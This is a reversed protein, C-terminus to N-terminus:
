GWHTRRRRAQTKQKLVLVRVEDVTNAERRVSGIEDSDARVLLGDEVVALRAVRETIAAYLGHGM